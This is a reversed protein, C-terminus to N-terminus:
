EQEEYISVIWPTSVAMGLLMVDSAFASPDLLSSTGGFAINSLALTTDSM